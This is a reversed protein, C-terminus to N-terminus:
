IQNNSDLNVGQRSVGKLEHVKPNYAIKMLSGSLYVAIPWAPIEPAPHRKIAEPGHDAQEHRARPSGWPALVM